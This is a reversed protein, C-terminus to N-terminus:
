YTYERPIYINGVLNIFDMTVSMSISEYVEIERM